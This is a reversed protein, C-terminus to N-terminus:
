LETDVFEGPGEGHLQPEFIEGKDLLTTGTADLVPPEDIVGDGDDDIGNAFFFRALDKDPLVHAAKLLDQRTFEAKNESANEPVNVQDNGGHCDICRLKYNSHVHGASLGAHCNVCTGDFAFDQNTKEEDASCAGLVAGIIVIIISTTRM